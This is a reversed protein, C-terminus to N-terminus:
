LFWFCCAFLMSYVLYICLLFIVFVDVDIWHIHAPSEHVKNACWIIITAYLCFPISTFFEFYFFFLFSTNIKIFIKENSRKNERRLKKNIDFRQNKDPRLRRIHHKWKRKDDILACWQSYSTYILIVNIYVHM